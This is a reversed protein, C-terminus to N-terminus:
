GLLCVRGPRVVGVRREREGRSGGFIGVAAHMRRSRRPQSPPNEEGEEERERMGVDRERERRNTFCRSTPSAALPSTAAPRPRVAVATVLDCTATGGDLHGDVV